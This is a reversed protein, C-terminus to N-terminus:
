IRLLLLLVLMVLISTKIGIAPLQSLDGVLIIKRYPANLIANLVNQTLMSFEDIIIVDSVLPERVQSLYESIGNRTM